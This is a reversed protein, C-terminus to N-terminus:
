VRERVVREAGLLREEFLIGTDRRPKAPHSFLKVFVAHSPLVAFSCLEVLFQNITKKPTDISNKEDVLM